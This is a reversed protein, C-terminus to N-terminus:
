NLCCKKYKKGSGCPCPDNRGVKEDFRRHVGLEEERMRYFAQIWDPVTDVAAEFVEKPDMDVELLEAHIKDGQLLVALTALFTQADGKCLQEWADRRLRMGALFGDAWDRTILRGEDDTWFFPKYPKSRSRLSKIIKGYEVLLMGKLLLADDDDLTTDSASM